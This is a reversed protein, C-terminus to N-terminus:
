IVGRYGDFNTSLHLNKHQVIHVFILHIRLETPLATSQFDMPRYNLDVLIWWNVAPITEKHHAHMNLSQEGGLLTFFTSHGLTNITIYIRVIHLHSLTEYLIDNGNPHHLFNLAIRLHCGYARFVRIPNIHPSLYVFSQQM